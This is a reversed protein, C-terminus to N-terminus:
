LTKETCYSLNNRVLTTIGGRKCLIYFHKLYNANQIKPKLLHLCCIFKKYTYLSLKQILFLCKCHICLTEKSTCHKEAVHKKRVALSYGKFPYEMCNRQESKLTEINRINRLHWYFNQKNSFAKICIECNIM